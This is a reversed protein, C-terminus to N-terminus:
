NAHEEAVKLVIKGRTHGSESLEQAKRAESLPLVTEVFLKVKGADVLGAIQTLEAADPQIFIHTARVGHKAAEEQSPPSVTSVLIGGKKLVGFSRQQTEGGITDFVVDVDHVVDEFRTKKYDIPEDVGLEKLFSQHKRVSHRFCIRGEVERTPCRLKGRWRLCCSDFDDARRKLRRHRFYGEM